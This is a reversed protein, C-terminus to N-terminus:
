PGIYLDIIINLGVNWLHLAHTCWPNTYMDTLRETSSSRYNKNGFYDM